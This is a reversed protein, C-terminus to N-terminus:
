ARGTKIMSEKFIRYFAKNETISRKLIKQIEDINKRNIVVNVSKNFAMMNDGTRFRETILAVFINRRIDIDMRDLYRLVNNENLNKTGFNENIVVMDFVHFRMQKLADIPNKSERIHYGMDEIAAKMKSCLNPDMECLLATEVGEEIFDFPKESADYSSAAVREIINNEKQEAEFPKEDEFRADISIKNKCKPCAVSFIQGKPIKEDPIKFKSQCNDCTIDM